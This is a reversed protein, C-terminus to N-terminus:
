EKFGRTKPLGHFRLRPAKAVAREDAFPGRKESILFMNTATM